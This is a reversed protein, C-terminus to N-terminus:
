TCLHSEEFLIFKNNHPPSFEEFDWRKAKNMHFEREKSTFILARYLKTVDNWEAEWHYQRNKGRCKKCRGWGEKIECPKLIYIGRFSGRAYVAREIKM